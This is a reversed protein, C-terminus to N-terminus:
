PSRELQDFGAQLTSLLETLRHLDNPDWGETVEALLQRRRATVKELIAQGEGTLRLRAKRRDDTCTRRDLLGAEVAGDVVRSATSPDIMLAGAVAGVSPLGDSRQVARLLRLTASEIAPSLGQLLRRRYGSRQFVRRLRLLSEDLGDLPGMADSVSSSPPISTVMTIHLVCIAVQRTALPQSGVAVAEGDELRVVNDRRRPARQDTIFGLVDATTVQEPERAVVRFFVKLDYATALQCDRAVHEAADSSRRVAPLRGVASAGAGGHGHWRLDGFTYSVDVGM